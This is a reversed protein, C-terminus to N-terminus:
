RKPKLKGAEALKLLAHAAGSPANRDIEWNQLTRASVGILEAFGTQTLGLRERIRKIDKGKM